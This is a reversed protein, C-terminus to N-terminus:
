DQYSPKPFDLIWFEFADQVIVDCAYFINHGKSFGNLCVAEKYNGDM